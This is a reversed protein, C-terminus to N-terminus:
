ALLIRSRRLEVCLSFLLLGSRYFFREDPPSQIVQGHQWGSDGSRLECCLQRYACVGFVEQRTGMNEVSIRCEFDSLNRMYLCCALDNAIFTIEGTYVLRSPLPESQTLNSFSSDVSGETVASRLEKSCLRRVVTWETAMLIKEKKSSVLVKRKLCTVKYFQRLKFLIRWKLLASGYFGITVSFKNHELLEAFFILKTGFKLVATLRALQGQLDVGVSNNSLLLPVDCFPIPVIKYVELYTSPSDEPKITPTVDLGKLGNCSKCAVRNSVFLLFFGSPLTEYFTLCIFPAIGTDDEVCLYGQPEYSRPTATIFGLIVYVNGIFFVNSLLLEKVTVTCLYKNRSNVTSNFDLLMPSNKIFKYTRKALLESNLLSDSPIYTRCTKELNRKVFKYFKIKDQMEHARQELV